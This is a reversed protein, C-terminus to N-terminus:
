LRFKRNEPWVTSRDAISRLLEALRAVRRATPATRRPGGSPRESEAVRDSLLAIRCQPLAKRMSAALLEIPEDEVDDGIALLVVARDGAARCLFFARECARDGAGDCVILRDDAARAAIRRAGRDLDGNLEVIQVDFDCAELETRAATAGGATETVLLISLRQEADGVARREAQRRSRDGAKHVAVRTSGRMGM